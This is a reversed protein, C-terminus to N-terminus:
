WQRHWAAWLASMAEHALADGEPCSEEKLTFQHRSDRVASWPQRSWIGACRVMGHVTCVVIVPRRRRNVM